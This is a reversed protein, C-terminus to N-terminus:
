SSRHQRPQLTHIYHQIDQVDQVNGEIDDQRVLKNRRKVRRDARKEARRMEKGSKRSQFETFLSHRATMTASGAAVGESSFFVALKAKPPKM